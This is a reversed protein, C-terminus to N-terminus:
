SAVRWTEVSSEGYRLIRVISNKNVFSKFKSSFFTETIEGDSFVQWRYRCQAAPEQCRLPTMQPPVKNLFSTLMNLVICSLNISPIVAFQQQYSNHTEVIKILIPMCKSLDTTLMSEWKQLLRQALIRSNGAKKRCQCPGERESNRSVMRLAM